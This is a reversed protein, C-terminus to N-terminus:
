KFHKKLIKGMEPVILEILDLRKTGGQALDKRGGGQGKTAKAIDKIIDDASIKQTIDRSCAVIFYVKEETKSFLVLITKKEKDRIKDAAGRLDNM